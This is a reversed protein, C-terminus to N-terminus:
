DVEHQRAGEITVAQFEVVIVWLSWCGREVLRATVTTSIYTRWVDSCPPVQKQM